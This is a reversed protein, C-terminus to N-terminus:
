TKKFHRKAADKNLLIIAWIGVPFLICGFCPIAAVIAASKAQRLDSRRIMAIGGILMALFASIALMRGFIAGAVYSNFTFELEGTAVLFIFFAFQGLNALLVFSSWATLLSGAVIYQTPSSGGQSGQYQPTQGFSTTTTPVAYPNAPQPSNFSPPFGQAFPDKQPAPKPKAPAAPKVPAPRATPRPTPSTPKPGTNTTPRSPSAGPNQPSASQSQAGPVQMISQCKTCRIKKGIATDPANLLSGCNGCKVQIAM